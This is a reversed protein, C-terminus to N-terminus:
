SQYIAVLENKVDAELGPRRAQLVKKWFSKLVSELDDPDTVQRAIEMLTLITESSLQPIMASCMPLGIPPDQETVSRFVVLHTALVDPALNAFIRPNGSTLPLHAAQILLPLAHSVFPGTFDVVHDRFRELLIVTADFAATMANVNLTSGQFPRCLARQFNDMWEPEHDFTDITELLLAYAASAESEDATELYRLALFAQERIREEPVGLRRRIGSALAIWILGQDGTAYVLDFVRYWNPATFQDFGHERLVMRGHECLEENQPSCTELLFTVLHDGADGEPIEVLAELFRLIGHAIAMGYPTELSVPFGAIQDVLQPIIGPLSEGAEIAEAVAVCFVPRVVEPFGQWIRLDLIVRLYGPGLASLVSIVCGPFECPNWNDGYAELVQVHCGFERLLLRPALAALLRTMDSAPVRSLGELPAM